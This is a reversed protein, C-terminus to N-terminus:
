FLHCRGTAIYPRYLPVGKVWGMYSKIAPFYTARRWTRPESGDRSFISVVFLNDSTTAEIVTVRQDTCNVYSPYELPNGQGFFTGAEIKYPPSCASSPVTFTTRDVEAKQVPKLDDFDNGILETKANFECVFDYAFAPSLTAILGALLSLRFLM